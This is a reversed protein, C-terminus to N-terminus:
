RIVQEPTDGLFIKLELPGNMLLFDIVYEDKQNDTVKRLRFEIPYINRILVINFKGSKERSM